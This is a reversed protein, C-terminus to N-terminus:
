GSMIAFFSAAAVMAGPWDQGPAAIVTLSTAAAGNKRASSRARDTVWRGHCMM